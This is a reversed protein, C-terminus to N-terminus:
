KCVKSSAYRPWRELTVHINSKECNATMGMVHWRHNHCFSFTTCLLFQHQLVMGMLSCKSHASITWPLSTWQLSGLLLLSAASRFIMLQIYVYTACLILLFACLISLWVLTRGKQAKNKSLSNSPKGHVETLTIHPFCMAQYMAKTFRKNKECLLGHSMVRTTFKTYLPITMLIM